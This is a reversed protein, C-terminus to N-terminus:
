SLSIFFYIGGKHLGIFYFSYAIIDPASPLQSLEAIDGVNDKPATKVPINKVGPKVKDANNVEFALGVLRLAIIQHLWIVYQYSAITYHLYLLYTWVYAM